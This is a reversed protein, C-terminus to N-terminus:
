KWYRCMHNAVKCIHVAGFWTQLSLYEENLEGVLTTISWIKLASSLSALPSTTGATKWDTSVTTSSSGISWQCRICVQPYLVCWVNKCKLWATSDLTAIAYYYWAGAIEGSCLLYWSSYIWETFTNFCLSAASIDIKSHLPYSLRLPRHTLFGKM